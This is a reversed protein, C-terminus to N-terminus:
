ILRGKSFRATQDAAPSRLGTEYWVFVIIFAHENTSVCEWGRMISGPCSTRCLCCHQQLTRSLNKKKKCSLFFLWVAGMDGHRHPGEAGIRGVARELRVCCDGAPVRGSLWAVIRSRASLGKSSNLFLLKGAHRLYSQLFFKKKLQTNM